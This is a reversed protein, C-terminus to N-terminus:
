YKAIESKLAAINKERLVVSDRLRGLREVYKQSNKKEEETKNTESENLQKHADQLLREEKALEEELIHRRNVDREKQTNSDVKPFSAPSPTSVSSSGSSKSTVKSPSRGPAPADIMLREGGKIPTNSFTVHGSSDVYKYIVDALTSAASCAFILPLLVIRVPIM